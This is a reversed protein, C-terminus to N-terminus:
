LALKRVIKYILRNYGSYQKILKLLTSFAVCLLVCVLYQIPLVHSYYVVGSLMTFVITHILFMDGSIEGLYILIKRILENQVVLFLLTICSIAGVTHLQAQIGFVNTPVVFWALYPGAFTVALLIICLIIQLFLSKREFYVKIHTFINNGAFLIGLLITFFYCNYDGGYPSQFVIPIYNYIVAFALLAYWNFKKVFLFFLPFLILEIVAYNMYWFVANLMHYSNGTVDNLAFLDLIMYVPSNDYVSLDASPLVAFLIWLCCLTFMFPTLLKIWRGIIFRFNSVGKKRSIYNLTIGYASLFSFIYVCIRCCFAFHSIAEASIFNLEVGTLEIDEVTRYMHHFILLLVAIGKM